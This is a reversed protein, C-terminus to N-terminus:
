TREVRDVVKALLMEMGYMKAELKWELAAAETTQSRKWQPDDYEHTAEVLRQILARM